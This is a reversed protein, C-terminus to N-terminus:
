DEVLRDLNHELAFLGAAALIGAQRMGGGLRKRIVRARRMSETTGCLVSGVPAGLGKSLSFMVTDFGAALREADVGLAAAANFLRAGDLHLALRHHRARAVLRSSQELDLVTGGAHNHTNELVLLRTPSMYYVDPAIREDIQEPTIRGGDGVIVRALAGSWAAMAGLEYRYVHSDQEVLVDCGPQTHLQIAIQNGMTGTPVFLASPHGVIVAAREELARVTPDEGYVDDGVVAAAMARRMDPGPRTVTDSRLDIPTAM